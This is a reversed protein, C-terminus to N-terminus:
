LASLPQLVAQALLKEQDMLQLKEWPISNRLSFDGCAERELSALVAGVNLKNGIDEVLTRIYTGKSCRVRFVVDPLKIELIKFDYIQVNRSPREITRGTRAIEYLKRGRIKVASYMPPIQEITGIM